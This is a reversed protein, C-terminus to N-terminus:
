SGRRVTLFKQFLMRLGAHDLFNKDFETLTAYVADVEESNVDRLAHKVADQPPNAAQEARVASYGLCQVELKRLRQEMEGLTQLRQELDGVAFPRNELREIRTIQNCCRGQLDEVIEELRAIREKKSM